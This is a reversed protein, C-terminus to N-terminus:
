EQKKKKGLTLHSQDEMFPPSGPKKNKKGSNPKNSKEHRSVVHIPEEEIREM